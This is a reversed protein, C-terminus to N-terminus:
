KCVSCKESQVIKKEHYKSSINKYRLTTDFGNEKLFTDEGKWSYIMSETIQNKTLKNIAELVLLSTNLSSINSYPSYSSGCGLSKKTIEREGINIFSIADKNLGFCCELCGEAVNLVVHGGINYAENYAYLSPKKNLKIVSNLYLDLSRNGTCSIILSYEELNIEKNKILTLVSKTVASIKIFPNSAEYFEKLAVAKNKRIGYNSLFHRYLNEDSLSDIDILTLRELGMKIIGDIVYSGVSGCGIVLVNDLPNNNENVRMFMSNKDIPIASLLGLKNIFKNKEVSVGIYFNEKKSFIHFFIKLNKNKNGKKTILKNIIEQNNKTCYKNLINNFWSCDLVQEYNPPLEDFNDLPIYLIDKKIPKLKINSFTRLKKTREENFLYILFENKAIECSYLLCVKSLSSTIFKYNEKQYNKNRIWYDLFENKFEKEIVILDNENLISIAKSLCSKLIGDADKFDYSVTEPDIYCIKGNEEIHPKFEQYNKVYIDPLKLPYTEDINVELSYDKYNFNFNYRNMKKEFKLDTVELEKLIGIFITEM